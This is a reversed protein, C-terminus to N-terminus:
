SFEHPPPRAKGSFIHSSCPYIYHILPARSRGLQQRTSLFRLHGLFATLGGAIFQTVSQARPLLRKWPLVGRVRVRFRGWALPDIRPLRRRLYRDPPECARAARRAKLEESAVCSTRWSRAECANESDSSGGAPRKGTGPGLERTLVDQHVKIQGNLQRGKSMANFEELRKRPSDVPPRESSPVPIGVKGSTAPHTSYLRRM